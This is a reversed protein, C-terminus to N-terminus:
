KMHVTPIDYIEFCERLREITFSKNGSEDAYTELSDIFFSVIQKTSGEIIEKRYTKLSKKLWKKWIAIDSIGYNRIDDFEELIREESSGKLSDYITRKDKPTLINCNCTNATCNCDKEINKDTPPNM